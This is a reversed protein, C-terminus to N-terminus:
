NTKTNGYPDPTQLTSIIHRLSEQAISYVDTESFLTEDLEAPLMYM